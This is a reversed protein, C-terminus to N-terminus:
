AKGQKPTMTASIPAKVTDRSDKTKGKRKWRERKWLRRALLWTRVPKLHDKRRVTNCIQM